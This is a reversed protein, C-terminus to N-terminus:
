PGYPGYGGRGFGFQIEVSTSRYGSGGYGGGYGGGYPYVPPRPGCVPPPPPLPVPVPVVVPPRCGCDYRRHHNCFHRGYGPGHGYGRGYGYGRDYGYGGGYGGGYGYGRGYAVPSPGHGFDDGDHAQAESGAGLGGIALAGALLTGFISRTM